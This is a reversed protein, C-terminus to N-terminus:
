IRISRGVVFHIWIFYESVTFSVLYCVGTIVNQAKSISDGPTTDQPPHPIKHVGPSLTCSVSVGLPPHYVLPHSLADSCGCPTNPPTFFSPYSLFPHSLVDSCGCRTNQAHYILPHSVSSGSIFRQQRCKLPQPVAPPHYCHRCSCTCGDRM